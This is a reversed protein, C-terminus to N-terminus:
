VVSKRLFSVAGASGGFFQLAFLVAFVVLSIIIYVRGSIVGM